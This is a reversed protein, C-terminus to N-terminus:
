LSTYTLQQNDVPIKTMRLAAFSRSAVNGGALNPHMAYFDKAESIIVHM